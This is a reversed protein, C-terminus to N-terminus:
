GIAGNGNGGDHRSRNAIVTSVPQIVQPGTMTLEITFRPNFTQSTVTAGRIRDLRFARLQGSDSRSALKM